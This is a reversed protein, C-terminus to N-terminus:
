NIKRLHDIVKIAKEEGNLKYLVYVSCDSVNSIKEINKSYANFGCNYHNYGDNEDNSIEEKKSMETPFQYADGSNNDKIIIKITTWLNEVNPKLMWGEINIEDNTFVAKEINYHYNEKEDFELTSIDIPKIRLEILNLVIYFIIFLSLLSFLAIIIFKKTHLKQFDNKM